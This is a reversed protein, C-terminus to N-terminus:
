SSTSQPSDLPAEIKDWRGSIDSFSNNGSIYVSNCILTGKNNLTDDSAQKENVPEM